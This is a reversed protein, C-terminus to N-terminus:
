ETTLLAGAELWGGTEVIANQGFKVGRMTPDWRYSRLTRLPEDGQPVGTTQDVTTISCRTCPKVLRLRVDGAALWPWVQAELAAALRAKEPLPRPRLTSGTFTLRRRMVLGIDITARAGQLLAIQVLHGDEALLGSVVVALVLVAAVSWDVGWRLWAVTAVVALTTLALGVALREDYLGAGPVLISRAM